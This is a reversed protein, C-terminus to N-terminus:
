NIAPNFLTETERILAILFTDREGEGEEEEEEEERINDGDDGINDGINDVDHYVCLM